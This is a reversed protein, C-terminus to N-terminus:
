RLPHAWSLVGRVVQETSLDSSGPGRRTQPPAEGQQAPPGECGM